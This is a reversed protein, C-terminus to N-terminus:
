KEGQQETETSASAGIPTIGYVGPLNRWREKDDMGYGVLWDSGPFRFGVWTPEFTEHSLIRKVLVASKVDKAGRGKLVEYLAAFTRGSDCIDDLLLVSRGEVDLSDALVSVQDTEIVNEGPEYAVTRVLAIELSTAVARVLDSFFFIGGRLVPVALVDRHTEEQVSKAWPLIEKGLEAIRSAIQERAYFPTFHEPIEVRSGSNNSISM